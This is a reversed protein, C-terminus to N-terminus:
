SISSTCDIAHFCTGQAENTPCLTSNAVGSPAVTTSVVCYAYASPCDASSSCCQNNSGLSSACLQGGGKLTATSCEDQEDESCAGCIIGTCTRAESVNVCTGGCSAPTLIPRARTQMGFGCTASCASWDPMEGVVCSVAPAPTEVCVRARCAVNRCTASPTPCDNDRDCQCTRRGRSDKPGCTGSCCNAHERCIDGTSRCTVADVQESAHLSFAGALLGGLLRRRSGRTAIQRALTDFRTGDM